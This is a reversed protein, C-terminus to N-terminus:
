GQNKQMKPMQVNRPTTPILPMSQQKPSVTIMSVLFTKFLKTTKPATFNM